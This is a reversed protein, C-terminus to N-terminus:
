GAPRFTVYVVADMAPMVFNRAETIDYSASGDILSWIIKDLMFGPDPNPFVYVSTNPYVFMETTTSEGSLLGLAASGNQIPALSVKWARQPAGYGGDDWGGIVLDAGEIRIVRGGDQEGQDRWLATLTLDANLEVPAGVKYPKGDSGQWCDFVKGAPAAFGCGEITYTTGAAYPGDTRTEGSGNNAAYTVFCAAPGDLKLYPTLKIEKLGMLDGANESSYIKGDSGLFSKQLILNPTNLISSDGQLWIFDDANTWSLTVTGSPGTAIGYDGSGAFVQGGSITVSNVAYISDKGSAATVRGGSIMVSYASIGRDIGRAEVQGGNITVYSASMAFSPSAERSKNKAAATVNGGNITIKSSNIGDKGHASIEGSNITINKGADIGGNVGNEIVRGGNVTFNNGSSISSDAFETVLAADNVTINNWAFVETLNKIRVTCKELTLNNVLIAETPRIRDMVLNGVGMITLNYPLGDIRGNITLQRGFLDLTVDGTLAVNGNITRLDNLKIKGSWSEDAWACAGLCVLLTLVLLLSLATKRIHKM